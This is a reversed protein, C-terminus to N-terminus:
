ITYGGDIIINQGSIYTNMDSTLFKILRAIEIPQAFRNLPIKSEIEKLEQESNTRETLDTLTFGPSVSNILCNKHAYELALTKVLGTLAFKTAGYVSRGKRASVGWISSVLVIHSLDNSQLLQQLARFKSKINVEFMRDLDNENIMELGAPVNIGICDVVVSVDNILSLDFNKEFLDISINKVGAIKCPSRSVNTVVYNESTFLEVVAYGIGSSGGLVLVRPMDKM